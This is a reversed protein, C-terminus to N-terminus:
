ITTSAVSNATRVTGRIAPRESPCRGAKQRNGAFKATIEIERQRIEPM